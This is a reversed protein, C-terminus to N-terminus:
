RLLRSQDYDVEGLVIRSHIERVGLGRLVDVVSELDRTDLCALRLQYDYEGTTHTASLVQPVEVLDAEFEERDKEDKLKLDSLAHLTRGLAALDLEARYGRIVGSRQLRRVRDATSNPSLHVAQALQHFTLRGNHVLATAIEIDLADM